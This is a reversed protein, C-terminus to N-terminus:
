EGGGEMGEQQEAERQQRIFTELDSVPYLVRKGLRICKIPGRPETWNWLTKPCVSLSRAADEASLLLKPIPSGPQDDQYIGRM